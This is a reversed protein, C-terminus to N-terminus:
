DCTLLREENDDNGRTCRNTTNVSVISMELLFDDLVNFKSRTERSAAKSDLSRVEARLRWPRTTMPLRDFGSRGAGGREAGGRVGHGERHLVVVHRETSM